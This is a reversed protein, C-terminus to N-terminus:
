AFIEPAEDVLTLTSQLDDRYTIGFVIMRRFEQVTVATAILTGPPVTTVPAAFSLIDTEGTANDLAAVVVDGTPYRIIASTTLGLLYVDPVAYVDTVGYVDPENSCMVRADLTVGDTGGDMVRAFGGNRAVADHVLGVLSGRRCVLADHSVDVSFLTARKELQALDYLARDIAAAETTVGEYRVQEMRGSDESLGPRFVSIQRPQYDQTADDFTVRLGDPLEKFAKSWRFNSTNRPTFLQVPPEASRDYDRVVGWRDSMYPRAYGCAAIVQMAEGASTDTVMADCTFGATACAARWEVLGADDLNALPLPDANQRGILVDRYHPAPNSTVVWDNWGTGDWDLVWGGAEVSLRDVTQNRARVAILAFDNGRVPSQNWISVSRQVALTDTLNSRAFPIAPPSGFYGFLDYVTGQYHYSSDQWPQDRVVCGRVIEVEYLGRPWETPDLLFEAAYRSARYRRLGTSGLNNQNVWTDGSGSYFYPDAVWGPAAPAVTQGPVTSFLSVFGRTQAATPAESGPETWTLRIVARLQRADAAAFHMEPLNRWVLDGRPRIRVRIPMRVLDGTNAPRTLGQPWVLQLEHVDPARRTAFVQSQPVALAVDVEPDLLAENTGSVQHGRLERGVAETRGYRTVLSLPPDGPWGERIQDEVGEVDAIPAAGIQIDALNHPGCLGYVAEVIEDDGDFTVLPEALLPPFVRRQGVVRPVVGNPDLINGRAMADRRTERGRDDRALTPPPVLANLILSGVLSIGGALFLASTSGAAFLTSSLQLAGGAGFLGSAAGGSLVTLLLGGLLALPNKGGGGEGGGGDLIPAHFTIANAVGGAVAKPRVLHWAGRPVPQGGVCVTGRSKVVAPLDARDIIEAVTLGEPLRMVRPVTGFPQRYVCYLDTV